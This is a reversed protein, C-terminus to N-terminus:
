EPAPQVNPFLMPPASLDCEFPSATKCVSNPFLRAGQPKVALRPRSSLELARVLRM